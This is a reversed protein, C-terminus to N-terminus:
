ACADELRRLARHVARVQGGPLRRLTAAQELTPRGVLTMAIVAPHEDGLTSPDVTGAILARVEAAPRAAVPTSTASAAAPPPALPSPASLRFRAAAAPRTPPPPTEARSENLVPAATSFVRAPPATGVDVPRSPGSAAAASAPGAAADTAPRRREVTEVLDRAWDRLRDPAVGAASGDGGQELVAMLARAKEANASAPTTAPGARRPPAPDIRPASPPRRFKLM